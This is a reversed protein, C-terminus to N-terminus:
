RSRGCGIRRPRARLEPTCDHYFRRSRSSPSSRSCETASSRDGRDLATGVEGGTLANEAASEGVELAFATLYVLHAVRPHVGAETIVAGGYSHGVLVVEGALADLADRM